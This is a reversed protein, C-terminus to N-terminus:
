KSAAVERGAKRVVRGNAQWMETRGFWRLAGFAGLKGAVRGGQAQHKRKLSLELMVKELFGERVRM